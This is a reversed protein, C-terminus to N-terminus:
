RSIVRAGCSPCFNYREDGIAYGCCECLPVDRGYRKRTKGNRTTVSGVTADVVQEPTIRSELRVTIKGNIESAVVGIGNDTQYYTEHHPNWVSPMWSVGRQDLLKRLENTVSM